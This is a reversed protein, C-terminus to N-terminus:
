LGLKKIEIELMQRAKGNDLFNEQIRARVIPFGPGVAELIRTNDQSSLVTEIRRIKDFIAEKLFKDLDQSSILDGPVQSDKMIETISKSMPSRFFLRSIVTSSAEQVADRILEKEIASVGDELKETSLPNLKYYLILMERTFKEADDAGYTDGIVHVLEDSLIGIFNRGDSIEQRDKKAYSKAYQPDFYITNDTKLTIADFGNSKNYASIEQPAKPDPMLRFKYGQEKVANLAQKYFPIDQKALVELINMTFNQFEEQTMKGIDDMKINKELKELDSLGFNEFANIGLWSAIGVGGLGVAGGLFARRTSKRSLNSIAIVDRSKLARGTGERDDKKARLDALQNRDARSLTLREIITQLKVLFIIAKM